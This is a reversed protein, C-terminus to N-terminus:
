FELKKNLWKKKGLEAWIDIMPKTKYSIDTLEKASFPNLTLL